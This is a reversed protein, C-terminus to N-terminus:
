RAKIVIVTADDLFQGACFAGVERMIEAQIEAARGHTNRQATRQLRDEGFEESSADEAEVVGDTYLILV